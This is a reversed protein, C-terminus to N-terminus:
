SLDTKVTKTEERSRVRLPEPPLCPVALPDVFLEADFCRMIEKLIPEKLLAALAPDNSSIEAWADRRHREALGSLKVFREGRPVVPVSDIDWWAGQTENSM